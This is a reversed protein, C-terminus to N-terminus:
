KNDMLVKVDEVVGRAMKKFYSKEDKERFSEWGDLGETSRLELTEYGERIVKAVQASTLHKVQTGRVGDKLMAHYHKSVGILTNISNGQKKGLNYNDSFKQLTEGCEVLKYFLDDYAAPSSLFSEGTSLSLTIVNTLSDLLIEINLLNSLDSSYQAMFRTLTLLSRFLESWHYELRTRSRGLYSLLRHILAIFLIYLDVDLRKRLNHNIGDIMGDLISAALVREGKVLPLYPSRQRCLRVFSKSEESCIRKCLIQDELLLRLTTLNLRAYLSCRSSTYAHELLYSTLSLFSAIPAEASKAAPPLIILNHCFLKNAYAFDYTALLIAAEAGPLKQFLLKAAEPEIVPQKPKAGVLTGLGLMGFASTLSWGEPLDNQIDVYADRLKACTAGTSRIINQITSENVFDELRLRYPNQFEFKNYNALLGLATFPFFAANPYDSDQIFKMLSPFLDRHTFYSLLSTQYAGSIISLTVEIAKHRIEVISTLELGQQFVCPLFFYVPAGPESLATSSLLSSPSFQMSM